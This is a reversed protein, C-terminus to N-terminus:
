FQMPIMLDGAQPASPRPFALGDEDYFDKSVLIADTGYEIAEKLTRGATIAQAVDRFTVMYGNGDEEPTLTAPYYVTDGPQPETARKLVLDVFTFVYSNLDMKGNSQEKLKFGSKLADHRIMDRSPMHIPYNSVSLKIEKINILM